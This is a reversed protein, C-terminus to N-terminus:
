SAHTVSHFSQNSAALEYYKEAGLRDHVALIHQDPVGLEQLSMGLLEQPTVGLSFERATEKALPVDSRSPAEECGACIADTDLIRFSPRNMELRRKGCRCMVSLVFTRDARFDLTAGPGSLGDREVYALFSALDACHTLTVPTVEPYSVHGVCSENVPLRMVDFDNLKGQFYIKHGSQVKQGCLLKVAEQVQIAAILSSTVQITPMKGESFSARKFDDCSYRRRAAVVQQNTAACQYCPPAPPVFVTVHGGLELIGSDIWPRGALWCQRNVAFRSEVNDLCALVVDMSRFIGTGLDWVIDGDFWHVQVNDLLSLDKTREAAIQAKRKGQDGQRFLVTRSLNSTSIEDFDAVYINGVGLLALNKLTENGIAGAGIVLVKASKLREQNWWGIREQRDFPNKEPDVISTVSFRHDNGSM